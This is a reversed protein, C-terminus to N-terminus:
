GIFQTVNNLKINPDRVFSGDIINKIHWEKKWETQNTVMEPHFEKRLGFYLGGVVGESSNLYLVPPYSCMHLGDYKIPFVFM